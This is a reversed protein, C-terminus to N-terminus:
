RPRAARVAALFDTLAHETQVAPTAGAAGSGATALAATATEPLARGLRDHVVDTGATRDVRYLGQNFGIIPSVLPPDQERDLFVVYREGPALEPMGDISQRIAGVEGGALRLTLTDAAAGVVVEDVTLTVLTEFFGPNTAMRRSVIDRVTGVVITEAQACQEVFDLALVITAQVTTASVAVLIGGLLVRVLAATRFKVRRSQRPLVECRQLALPLAGCPHKWRWRDCRGLM